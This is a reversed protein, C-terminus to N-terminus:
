RMSNWQVAGRITTKLRLPRLPAKECLYPVWAPPLMLARRGCKLGPLDNIGLPTGNLLTPIRHRAICNIGLPNDLTRALYPLICPISEERGIKARRLWSNAGLIVTVGGGLPDKGADARTVVRYRGAGKASIPGTQVSPVPVLKSDDGGPSVHTTGPSTPLPVRSGV